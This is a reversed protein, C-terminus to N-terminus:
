MTAQIRATTASALLLTAPAIATVGVAVVALTLSPVGQGAMSVTQMLFTNLFMLGLAMAVREDVALWVLGGLFVGFTMGERLIGAVDPFAQSTVATALVLLLPIVPAYRLLGTVPRPRRVAVPVLLAVALPFQWFDGLNPGPMPGAVADAVSLGLVFAVAAAAMAIRYHSRLGAVVAGVGLGLAVLQVARETPLWMSPSVFYAETAVRVATQTSGYVLLMLAAARFAALWSHGVSQRYHRGAHARLGGLILAGVEGLAPRRRDDGASELLTELLEAGRARRYEAPYLGLLRAYRRELEASM